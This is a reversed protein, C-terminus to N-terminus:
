NPDIHVPRVQITTAVCHVAKVFRYEDTYHSREIHGIGARWCMDEAWMQAEGEPVGSALKRFRRYIQVLLYRLLPNFHAM